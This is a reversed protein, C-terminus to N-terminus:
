GVASGPRDPPAPAPQAPLVFREGVAIPFGALFERAALRRGGPRQWEGIRIVGDGCVVAVGDAAVDTVTGPPADCPLAHEPARPAFLRLVTDPAHALMGTSGPVPDFARLQRDIALASRRWDIMAEAKALKHAYTVGEAPQAVFTLGPSPLRGLATVIAEAGLVALRDHLTAATDVPGIITERRLCVPGTDLGAEMQMICVGTVTDGAEIARQIPAAGRWRPLLSAHINLCGHRPLALVAAPLIMGYAAVVIVDAGIRALASVVDPDRLSPPQLVDFGREIAFRKVPSSVQRQGRGAPRDPQTLVGVVTFGAADIAQLAAAAFAPTGAFLVRPSDANM